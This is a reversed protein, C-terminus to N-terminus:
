SITSDVHFGASPALTVNAHKDTNAYVGLVGCNLASPAYISNASAGSILTTSQLQTTSANITVCNVTAGGTATIRGGYTRVVGEGYLASYSTSANTYNIECNYLYATVGTQVDFAYAASAQDVKCNYFRILTGGELYVSGCRVDQVDTTVNVNFATIGSVFPRGIGQIRVGNILIITEVYTGPLIAVVDGSTAANIATQIDAYPFNLMGPVATSNDGSKSVWLVNDTPVNIALNSADDWTPAVGVGQSTLVKGAAVAARRALTTTTNAYILDGVVYVTQGTGGKVASIATGAWTGDTISSSNLDIGGDANIVGQMTLDGVIGVSQQFTGEGNSFFDGNISLGGILSMESGSWSANTVFSDLDASWAQVNTGIVLGLDIRFNAASRTTVTNDANIRLFTIATPNTLTFLADGVTTSGLGTTRTLAQTAQGVLTRGVGTLTFTAYTDAATTYIGRDAVTVLGAISVLAADVTFTFTGFTNIPSGAVSLAAASGAAVAAAVQTVTGLGASASLSFYITNGLTSIEIGGAGDLEIIGYLGELSIVYPALGPPTTGPAPCYCNSPSGDPGLAIM